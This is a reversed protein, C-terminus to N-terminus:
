MDEEYEFEDDFFDTDEDSDDALSESEAEEIISAAQKKQQKPKYIKSYYGIGIIGSILILMLVLMTPFKGGENTPPTEVAAPPAQTNIQPPATPTIQGGQRSQEAEVYALADQNVETLFYVNNEDKDYDLILYFTQGERSVITYFHKNGTVVYDVLTGGGDFREGTVSSPFVDSWDTSVLLDDSIVTNEGTPARDRVPANVEPAGVEGEAGVESTSAPPQTVTAYATINGTLMTVCILTLAFIATLGKKYM